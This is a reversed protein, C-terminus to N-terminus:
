PHAATAAQKRYEEPVADAKNTWHAVGSEDTWRYLRARASPRPADSDPPVYAPPAVAPPPAAAPPAPPPNPVWVWTYPTTVGDGRLEYRGHSYEVVSPSVPALTVSGTGGMPPPTYVAPQQYSAAYVPAPAYEVGYSVPPSYYYAPPAYVAPPYYAPSGYIVGACCSSVFSNKHHFGHKHHGHHGFGHHHGGHRHGGHRHGGNHHGGHRHGGGHGGGGGGRGALATAPELALGLVLGVCVAVILRGPKM